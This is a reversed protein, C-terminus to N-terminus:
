LVVVVLQCIWRWRGVLKAPVGFVIVSRCVQVSALGWSVVPPLSGCWRGCKWMCVGECLVGVQERGGIGVMGVVASRWVLGLGDHAGVMWWLLSGGESSGCAGCGGPDLFRLRVRERVCWWVEEEEWLTVRGWWCSEVRGGRLGSM